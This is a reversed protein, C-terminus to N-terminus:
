EGCELGWGAARRSLTLLARGAKAFSLFLARSEKGAGGLRRKGCM